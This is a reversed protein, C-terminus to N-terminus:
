IPKVHWRIFGPFKEEFDATMLETLHTGVVNKGVCFREGKTIESEEEYHRRFVCFFSSKPM